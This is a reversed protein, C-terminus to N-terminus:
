PGRRQQCQEHCRCGSPNSPTAYPHDIVLDSARFNHAHILPASTLLAAAATLAMARRTFHRPSM